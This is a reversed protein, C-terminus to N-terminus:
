DGDNCETQQLKYTATARKGCKQCKYFKGYEEIDHGDEDEWPLAM